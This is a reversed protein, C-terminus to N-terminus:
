FCITPNIDNRETKSIYIFPFKLVEQRQEFDQEGFFRDKGM